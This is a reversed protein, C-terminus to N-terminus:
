TREDRPNLLPKCKFSGVYKEGTKNGTVSLEFSVTENFVM